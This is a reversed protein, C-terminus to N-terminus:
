LCEVKEEDNKVHQQDELMSHQYEIEDKFSNKTYKLCSQEAHEAQIKLSKKSPKLLKNM